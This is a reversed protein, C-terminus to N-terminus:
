RIRKCIYVNIITFSIAFLVKFFFITNNNNNNNNNNNDYSKIIQGINNEKKRELSYRETLKRISEKTMNNFTESTMTKNFIIPKHIFM